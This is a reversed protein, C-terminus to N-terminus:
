VRQGKWADQLIAETRPLFIQTSPGISFRFEGKIVVGHEFSVSYFDLGEEDPECPKSRRPAKVWSLASEGIVSLPGNPGLSVVHAKNAPVKRNTEDCHVKEM